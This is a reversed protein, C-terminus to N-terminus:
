SIEKLNGLPELKESEVIIATLGHRTVTEHWEGATWYALEGAKIPYFIGDSGAVEGEGGVVMFVQPIPAEHGGIKGGRELHICATQCVEVQREMIRLIPTISMGVSEYRDISKGTTSDFSYRKM